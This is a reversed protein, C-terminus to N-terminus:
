SKAQLPPPLGREEWRNSLYDEMVEVESQVALRDVFGFSDIFSALVRVPFQITFKEAGPWPRGDYAEAGVLDTLWHVLYFSIDVNSARGRTIVQKFKSFLISPPAEGQVLWGNNFGMKGQTFLVPARQGPELCQYSPLLTPFFELVYALSMDHDNIPEEALYGQYPAHQPLVSPILATNKMVDHIATLVLMAVVRDHCLSLQGGM